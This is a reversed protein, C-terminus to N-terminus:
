SLFNSKAVIGRVTSRGPAINKAVELLESCFEFAKQLHVQEGEKIVQRVFRCRVELLLHHSPSLFRPIQFVFCIPSLWSQISFM